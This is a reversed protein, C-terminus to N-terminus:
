DPRDHFGIAEWISRARFWLGTLLPSTWLVPLGGRLLVKMRVLACAFEETKAASELRRAIHEWKTREEM